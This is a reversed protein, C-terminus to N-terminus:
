RTPKPSRGRWRSRSSCRCAPRLFPMAIDPAARHARRHDGRRGPRPARPLRWAAAHPERRRDRGRARPNTDVVAVLERRAAVVSDPRSAPRSARRRRGRRAAAHLDCGRSLGRIRVFDLVQTWSSGSAHVKTDEHTRSTASPDAVHTGSPPRRHRHGAEDAARIIADGDIMLTKGADVSLLTAGAAKM